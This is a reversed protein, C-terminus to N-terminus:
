EVVGSKHILFWKTSGAILRVSSWKNLVLQNNNTSDFNANANIQIPLDSKSKITLLFGNKVSGIDPLTINGSKLIYTNGNINDVPETRLDITEVFRIDRDILTTVNAKKLIKAIATLISDDEEVDLTTEDLPVKPIKHLTIKNLITNSDYTFNTEGEPLNSIDIPTFTGTENLFSKAINDAPDAIKSQYISLNGVNVCNNYLGIIDIGNISNCNKLDHNNFNLHSGLLDNEIPNYHQDVFTNLESKFDSIEFQGNISNDFQDSNITENKIQETMIIGSIGTNDSGPYWKATSANYKLVAGDIIPETLEVDSFLNIKSDTFDLMEFTYDNNTSKIHGAKNQFSQFAGANQIRQWGNDIEESDSYIAWDGITWYRGDDDYGTSTLIYYDGNSPATNIIAPNKVVDWDGLHNIGKISAWGWFKQDNSDAIIQLTDGEHPKKPNPENLYPNYRDTEKALKDLTISGDPFREGDIAGNPLAGLKIQAELKQIANYIVDGAEIPSSNLPEPQSPGDLLVSYVNEDSFYKNTVGEPFNDTNLERLKKEEDYFQDLAKNNIPFLDEKGNEQSLLLKKIGSIDAQLNDLNVSDFLNGNITIPFKNLDLDGLLLGGTKLLKDKLDSELSVFKGQQVQAGDSDPSITPALINTHSISNPVIRSGNIAGDASGNGDEGLTWGQFGDVEVYRLTDGSNSLNLNVDKFDQLKSESKDIMQWTYDNEKPIIAGTRPAVDSAGQFGLVDGTNNIKLWEATPTPAICVLWDGVNYTVTNITVPASIIFLDGKAASTPASSNGWKGKFKLGGEIKKTTWYTSGAILTDEDVALFGDTYDGSSKDLDETGLSDNALHKLEISKEPLEDFNQNQYFNNIETQFRKLAGILPEGVLWEISTPEPQIPDPPLPVINDFDSLITNIVRENTLFLNPTVETVQDIDLKVFKKSQNLYTTESELNSSEFKNEKAQLNTKLDQLEQHLKELSIGNIKADDLNDSDTFILDSNTQLHGFIDGNIQDLKLELSLGNIKSIEIGASDSIDADVIEGNVINDSRVIGMIGIDENLIKWKKLNTNWKLVAGNPISTLDSPVEIDAMEFISSKTDPLEPSIEAPRVVIQNWTYDYVPQGNDFGAKVHGKRGFIRAVTGNNSIKSWFNGNFILWDGENFIVENSGDTSFKGSETVIFYDGAVATVFIGSENKYIGSAQILPQNDFANWGSIFNLGSIPYGIWAGNGGNANANYLLVDGAEQGPVYINKYPIIGKQFQDGFILGDPTDLLIDYLAFSNFSGTLLILILLKHLLESRM